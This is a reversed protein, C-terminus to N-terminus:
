LLRALDEDEDLRSHRDVGDDLLEEAHADLGVVDHHVAAITEPGVGDAPLLLVGVAAAEEARTHAAALHACAEPGREHRAAMRGRPLVQTRDPLGDRGLHIGLRALRPLVPRGAFGHGAALGAGRVDAGVARAVVHLH